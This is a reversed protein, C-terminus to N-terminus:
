ECEHCSKNFETGFYNEHQAGPGLDRQNLHPVVQTAIADQAEALLLWLFYLLHIRSIVIRSSNSSSSQRQINSAAFRQFCREFIKQTLVWPPVAFIGQSRIQCHMCLDNSFSSSAPRTLYIELFGLSDLDVSLDLNINKGLCHRWVSPNRRYTNILARHKIWTTDPAGPM